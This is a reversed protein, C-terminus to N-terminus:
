AFSGPHCCAHCSRLSSPAELHLVAKGAVTRTALETLVDTADQWDRVMAVDLRLRRDMVMRALDALDDAVPHEEMDRLLYFGRLTVQKPYFDAVHFRTPSRSSNGYSLVLGEVACLELCVGLEDGGVSDLVVDFHSRRLAPSSLGIALHDAGLADLGRAREPTGVVATVEAGAAHALQIALRGVGGAAGTVLVTQGRIDGCRRILRLATLGAVPLAAAATFPMGKPIIACSGMPALILRAWSGGKIMGFVPTGPSFSHDPASVVTGAFDWGPRWGPTAEILRHLEGRNVSIAKVEVTIQGTASSSVCVQASKVLREDGTAVLAETISENM